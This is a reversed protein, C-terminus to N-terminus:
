RLKFKLSVDSLRLGIGAVGRLLDKNSYDKSNTFAFSFKQLLSTFILFMQLRAIAEGTCARKGISFPLMAPNKCYFKGDKIFRKPEFKEPNTWYNPDRMCSWMNVMIFTNEPIQYGKFHVDCTTSKPILIPGACHYRMTENIFAEVYPLKFRDSETPLKEKGLVHNIEDFLIQQQEPYYTVYLIAWDLTNSITDTGAVFLDQVMSSLHDFSFSKYTSRGINIRENNEHILSPTISIRRRNTLNRSQLSFARTNEETLLNIFPNSPNYFTVNNMLENLYCEIINTENGFATIM